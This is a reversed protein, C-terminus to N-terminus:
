DTEVWVILTLTTLVSNPESLAHLQKRALAYSKKLESMRTDDEDDNDM